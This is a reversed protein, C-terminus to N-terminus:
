GMSGGSRHAGILGAMELLARDAEIDGTGLNIKRRAEAERREFAWREAQAKAEADGGCGWVELSEIAFRDQFDFKRAVSSAFPGALATRHDHNFVGYEFSGDILLSVPGLPFRTSRRTAHTAVPHPAGVALYPQSVPSKAFSVFDTNMKSRVRFVDTVPELQFMVTEADGFCERHTHRWPQNVYIGFTLRDGKSGHPFKRSPITSAFTAEPGSTPADAIRTGRVLLITPARWNFVKTEFSMISFGDANGSYLPRLRGFLSDGPIFFSLQSLKSHNMIEGKSILTPPPQKPRLIEKISPGKFEDEKIEKKEDTKNAKKKAKEKEKEPESEPEPEPEPEPEKLGFNETYLFREFLPELADFMYPLNTQTIRKFTRWKIGPSKEVDVFSAIISDAASRIAKYDEPKLLATLRSPNLPKTLPAIFLLQMVLKRFNDVPIMAGSVIPADGQGFADDINLHALAALALDDDDDDSGEGDDEDAAVDVDFGGVGAAPAGQKRAEADQQQKAQEVESIRRDHVALGRFILKARDRTGHRLLRKHRHTFLAVIILLQDLGLPVPADRLYPYSGVYSALQFLVPGAGIFDPLELYRALTDERIHCVAGDASERAANTASATDALQTFNEKLCYVEIHLFLQQSIRQALDHVAEEHTLEREPKSTHQGM